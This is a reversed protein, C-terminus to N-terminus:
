QGHSNVTNLHLETCWPLLLFAILTVKESMISGTKDDPRAPFMVCPKSRQLANTIPSFTTILHMQYLVAEKLSHSIFTQTTSQVSFVILKQSSLARTGKPHSICRPVYDMERCPNTCLSTGAPQLREELGWGTV